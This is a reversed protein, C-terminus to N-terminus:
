KLIEFTNQKQSIEDRLPNILTVSTDFLPSCITEKQKIAVFNEKSM